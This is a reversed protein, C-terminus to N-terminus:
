QRPYMEWIIPFGTIQNIDWLSIGLENYYTHVISTNPCRRAIFAKLLGDDVPVNFQSAWM